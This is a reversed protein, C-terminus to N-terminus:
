PETRVPQFLLKPWGVRVFTLFACSMALLALLAAGLAFPGYAPALLWADYFMIGSLSFAAVVRLAVYSARVRALLLLLIPIVSALVFAAEALATWPERVREVFWSVKSPLDGYWLVLVAMFNIYTVGLTATLLLGGLDRRAREDLEPAILAAFALAALLQTIVLTAGFSTSIFVPEVSLIWDISVLTVMLAHFLLGLGAWLLSARGATRPLVLALVSWGVFAIIARLVFLPVNLYLAAVDPKIQSTETVWPYLLPLAVLVPIFVFWLLPVAAAAAEFTPRLSDGWRGGILRHIMLWAVSGLPIASVTIFAILWGAAALRPSIFAMAVLGALALAAVAILLWERRDHTM